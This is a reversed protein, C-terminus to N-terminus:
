SPLYPPTTPLCPIMYSLGSLSTHLSFSPTFGLSCYSYSSHLSESALATDTVMLERRVSKTWCGRSKSSFSHGDRQVEPSLSFFFHMNPGECRLDQQVCWGSVSELLLYDWCFCSRGLLCGSNIFISMRLLWSSPLNKWICVRFM